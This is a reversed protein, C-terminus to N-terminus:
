IQRNTPPALTIAVRELTVKVLETLQDTVTQVIPITSLALFALREVKIMWPFPM